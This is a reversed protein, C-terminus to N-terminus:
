KFEQDLEKYIKDLVETEIKINQWIEESKVAQGVLMYLGNCTKKGLTKGIKLFETTKPNYILDVLSDFNSIIDEGVVSSSVNPYMGVPTTNVLIDGKVEKLDDYDIVKINKNQTQVNEKNRTVLYLKSVKNDLFYTLVAKAAGGNGLVVAVKGSVEINNVELLKGFGFYDTNYGYLKGDNSLITNIAGIDAGEKSITDLQAIVDQKYPITVNVGKIDLLKLASGLSNIKDKPIQFLKYGGDINLLEFIRKHIRPSLSHSLKEGILGYFEM